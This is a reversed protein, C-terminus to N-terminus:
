AYAVILEPPPGELNPPPVGPFREAMEDRIKEAIGDRVFGAASYHGGGPLDGEALASANLRAAIEEAGSVLVPTKVVDRSLAKWAMEFSACWVANRGEPLPTDLTPVVVTRQLRSSDGEFAVPPPAYPQRARMRILLCVAVAAVAFCVPAALLLTM